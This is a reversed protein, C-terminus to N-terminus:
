KEKNQKKYIDNWKSGAHCFLSFDEIKINSIIVILILIIVTVTIGIVGTKKNKHM